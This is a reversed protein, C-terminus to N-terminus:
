IAVWTGGGTHAHVVFADCVLNGGIVSFQKISRHLMLKDTSLATTTGNGYDTTGSTTADWTQWIGSVCLTQMNSDATFARPRGGVVSEFYSTVSSALGGGSTIQPVTTGASMISYTFSSTETSDSAIAHLWTVSIIPNVPSSNWEIQWTTPENTSTVGRYTFSSTGTGDTASTGGNYVCQYPVSVSSGTGAFAGLFLFSPFPISAPAGGGSASLGLYVPDTASVSPQIQFGQFAPVFTLLSAAAQQLSFLGPLGFTRTSTFGNVTNNHITHDNFATGSGVASSFSGSAAFGIGTDSIAKTESATTAIFSDTSFFSSTGRDSGTWTILKGTTFSGLKPSSSTTAGFAGFTSVSTGVSPLSSNVTHTGVFSSYTYTKSASSMPLLGVAYSSYTTIWRTLDLDTSATSLSTAYEFSASFSSTAASTSGSAVVPYVVVISSTGLPYLTVEGTASEFLDSFEYSSWLFEGADTGPAFTFLIDNRVADFEPVLVTRLAYSEGLGRFTSTSLVAVTYTESSDTFITSTINDSVIVTTPITSDTDTSNTTTHTGAYFTHTGTSTSTSSGFLTSTIALTTDSHYTPSVISGSFSGTNSTFGSTGPSSSYAAYLTNGGSVTGATWNVVTESSLSQITSGYSTATGTGGGGETFSSGYHTSGNENLVAWANQNGNFWAHDNRSFNNSVFSSSYFSLGQASEM